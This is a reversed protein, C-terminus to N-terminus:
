ILLSSKIQVISEEYGLFLPFDEFIQYDFWYVEDRKFLLGSMGLFISHDLSAWFVPFYKKVVLLVVEWLIPVQMGGTVLGFV